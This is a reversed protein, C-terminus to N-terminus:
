SIMMASSFPCSYELGNNARAETSSYVGHASSVGVFETLLSDFTLGMTDLRQRLVRDALQAKELADPWSYVLTGVSWTPSSSENSLPQNGTSLDIISLRRFGLAVGADANGSAAAIHQGEADPGRHVILDTMRRLVTSDIASERRTWAAGAIGCM